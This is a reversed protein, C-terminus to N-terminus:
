WRAVSQNYINETIEKTMVDLLEDQVTTLMKSSDFTQSASLTTELDEKSNKTNTFRFRVTLTLQTQAALANSQISLAALRYDTIEGEIQLDGNRKVSQLRTRKAFLERLATNFKQALPPYVLTANNPFDTITITKIKTYDISSGNFKYSISCSVVIGILLMGIIVKWHITSTKM